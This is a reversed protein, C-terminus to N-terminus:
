IGVLLANYNLTTKCNSFIGGNYHSWNAADIAVSAPGKSLAKTLDNCNKIEYHGSIKFPGENLKCTQKKQQYPYEAETVIGNVKVYSYSYTNLGGNCGM